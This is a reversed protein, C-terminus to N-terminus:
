FIKDIKKDSDVKVGASLDIIGAMLVEVMMKMRMMKRPNGVLGPFTKYEGVGSDGDDILFYQVQDDRV